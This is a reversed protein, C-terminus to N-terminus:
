RIEDIGMQAQVATAVPKSGETTGREREKSQKSQKTNLANCCQAPWRALFRALAYGKVLKPVSASGPGDVQVRVGKRECWAPMLKGNGM